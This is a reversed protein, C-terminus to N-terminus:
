VPSLSFTALVFTVNDLKKASTKKTAGLLEKKNAEEGITTLVNKKPL